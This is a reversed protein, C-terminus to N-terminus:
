KEEQGKSRNSHKGVTRLWKLRDELYFPNNLITMLNNWGDWSDKALKRLKKNERELRELKKELLTLKREDRDLDQQLMRIRVAHNTLEVAEPKDAYFSDGFLNVKDYPQM